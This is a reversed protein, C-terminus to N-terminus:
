RGDDPEELPKHSARFLSAKIEMLRVLLRDLTGGPLVEHLAEALEDAQTWYTAAAAQLSPMEPIPEIIYITTDGITQKGIPAAKFIHVENPM